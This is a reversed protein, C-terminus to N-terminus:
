TMAATRGEQCSEVNGTHVLWAEQQVSADTRVTMLKAWM